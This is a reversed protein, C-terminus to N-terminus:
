ERKGINRFYIHANNFISMYNDLSSKLVEAEDLRKQEGIVLENTDVLAGLLVDSPKKPDKLAAELYVTAKITKTGSKRMRADLDSKRLEESVQIQAYLFKAALKEAEEITVGTEYSEQIQNTLEECLAQFKNM